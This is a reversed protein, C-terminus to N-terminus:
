QPEGGPGPEKQSPNTVTTATSQKIWFELAQTAPIMNSPVYNTKSAENDLTNENYMKRVENPTCGGTMFMTKIKREMAQSDGRLLLETDFMGDLVTRENITFLKRDAEQEFRRMWPLLCDTAYSINVQELSNNNADSLDQLKSLPHRFWRAVERSIANEIEILQSKQPDINMQQFTVGEPVAGVGGSNFSGLFMDVYTKLKKEDSVGTFSLLGTMSAGNKFYNNSYDQIALAKGITELQYSLVDLGIMGNGPGKLHFIEDQSVWKNLNLIPYNIHYFLMQLEADYQVFVFENPIYHIAAVNGSNDLELYWYGNGKYIADNFISYILDFPNAYSNPRVNLLQYARTQKIRTKNGNAENKVTIFPLKAIDECINRGCAYYTALGKATKTTVMQGSKSSSGGFWGGFVPINGVNVPRLAQPQLGKGRWNVASKYINTFINAM